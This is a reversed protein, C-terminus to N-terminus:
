RQPADPFVIEFPNGQKTIDRLAQRYDAWMNRDVNDLPSDPLQTWDSTLLLANRERRVERMKDAIREVIQGDTADEERWQTIWQGNINAVGDPFYNKTYYYPSRTVNVPYVGHEALISNGIEPPFTVGDADARFMEITYPYTTTGDENIKIYM